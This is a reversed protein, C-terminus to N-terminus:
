HQYKSLTFKIRAHTFFIQEYNKIARLRDFIKQQTKHCFIHREPGQYRHFPKLEKVTFLILMKILLM